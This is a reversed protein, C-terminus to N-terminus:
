AVEYLDDDFFTQSYRKPETYVSGGPMGNPYREAYYATLIRAPIMHREIRVIVAAFSGDHVLRHFAMGPALDQGRVQKIRLDRKASYTM